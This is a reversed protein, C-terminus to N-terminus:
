EGPINLKRVETGTSFIITKAEFKNKNIHVSFSNRSKEIKTVKGEVLEINYELAHEKIKEALEIGTLSKFGPYNEVNDTWTILGGILEGIILTKLKFRGAYMAASFGSCGAGIIIVDYM